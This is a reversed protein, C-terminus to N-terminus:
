LFPKLSLKVQERLGPTGHKRPVVERLIELFQPYYWIDELFLDDLIFFTNSHVKNIKALIKNTPWMM